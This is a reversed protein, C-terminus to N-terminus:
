HAEKVPNIYIRQLYNICGSKKKFNTVLSNNEEKSHTMNEQNEMNITHSCPQRHSQLFLVKELRVSYQKSYPAGVWKGKNRATVPM